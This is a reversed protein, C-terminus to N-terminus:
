QIYDAQIEYLVTPIDKENVVATNPHLKFEGGIRLRRYSYDVTQDNTIRVAVVDTIKPNGGFCCSGFDGVLIFNKLGTKKEGPRTYGKIFVKQQDFKLAEPSFPLPDRRDPKLESFSIRTYGEPVETAYVWSHYGIGGVLGVVGLLLGIRNMLRGTLEEPYRRFAIAAMVGCFIGIASFIAFVPHFWTLGGLLAFVFCIVAAKSVSRYVQHHPEGSLFGAASPETMSEPASTLNM